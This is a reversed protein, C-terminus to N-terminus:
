KFNPDLPYAAISLGSQGTTIGGVTNNQATAPAAFAAAALALLVAAAQKGSQERWAAMATATLAAPMDLAISALFHAQRLGARVACQELQRRHHSQWENQM